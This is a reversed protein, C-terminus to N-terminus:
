SPASGALRRRRVPIPGSAHLCVALVAPRHHLEPAVQPLELMVRHVALFSFRSRPTSGGDLCTAAAGGILPAILSRLSDPPLAPGTAHTALAYRALNGVTRLLEEGVTRDPDDFVTLLLRAIEPLYPLLANGHMIAAYSVLRCREKKAIVAGINRWDLLAAIAHNTGEPSLTDLLARAAVLASDSSGNADLDACLRMLGAVAEATM